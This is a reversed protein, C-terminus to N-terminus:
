ERNGQRVFEEDHQLTKAAGSKSGSPVGKDKEPPAEQPADLGSWTSARKSVVAPMLKTSVTEWAENFTVIWAEPSDPLENRMAEESEQGIFSLLYPKTADQLNSHLRVGNQMAGLIAGMVTNADFVQGEAM